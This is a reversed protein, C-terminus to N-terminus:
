DMLVNEERFSPRKSIGSEQALLKSVSRCRNAANSRAVQEDRGLAMATGVAVRGRWLCRIGVAGSNFVSERLFCHLIM